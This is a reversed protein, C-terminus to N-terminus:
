KRFPKYVVELYGSGYFLDYGILITTLALCVAGFRLAVALSQRM